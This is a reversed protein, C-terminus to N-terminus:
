FARSKVHSMIVWFVQKHEDLPKLPEFSQPFSQVQKLSVTDWDKM